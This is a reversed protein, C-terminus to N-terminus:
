NNGFVFKNYLYRFLFDSEQKKTFISDLGLLFITTIQKFEFYKQKILKKINNEKSQIKRDNSSPSHLRFTLTPVSIQISYQNFFNAASVLNGLNRSFTDVVKHM